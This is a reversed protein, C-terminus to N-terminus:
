HDEIKVIEKFDISGEFNLKKKLKQNELIKILLLSGITSKNGYCVEEQNIISKLKGKGIL